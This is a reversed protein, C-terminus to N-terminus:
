CRAASSRRSSRRGAGRGTPLLVRSASDAALLLVPRAADLVGDIWPISDVALRRALHPVM